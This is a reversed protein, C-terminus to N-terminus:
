SLSLSVSLSYSFLLPRCLSTLFANRISVVKAMWPMLDVTQGDRPLVKMLRDVHREFRVVDSLEARKFLPKILNRSRRWAAGENTLIGPGIFRLM